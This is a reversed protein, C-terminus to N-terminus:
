AILEKISPVYSVKEREWDSKECIGSLVGIFETNANRAAGLDHLSDGIFVAENPNANFRNLTINIGEPDPKFNEVEDGAISFDLLSELHYNKIMLDMSERYKTSIFCTKQNNEKIKLLIEKAGEVMPFQHSESTDKNKEVFIERIKHHNESPIINPMWTLLKVGMHQKYFADSITEAAGLTEAVDRLLEAYYDVSSLIVGDVDLLIYKYNSIM